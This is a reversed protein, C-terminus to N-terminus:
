GNHTCAPAAYVNLVVIVESHHDVVAVNAPLLVPPHSPPRTLACVCLVCVFCMCVCVCVCVDCMDCERAFCVSCVFCVFCM